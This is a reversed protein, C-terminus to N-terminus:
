YSKSSLQRNEGYRRIREYLFKREFDPISMPQYYYYGQAKNCGCALIYEAQEKTEVGEAIMDVSLEKIMGITHKLIIRTKEDTINNLFCKDIKIEDVPQQILMNMSSYGSGFDDMSFIFGKERLKCMNRYMTNQDELFASETLELKIYKPSIKYKESLYCLMDVFNSNYVHLRSVNVSIPILYYGESKWRRLTKFVEEWVFSDVRIIFGDKEFVSIFDDPKMKNGQADIWRVLAEAGIMRGTSMNIKPQLFIHFERNRLASEMRNEIQKEALIRSRIEPNYFTYFDFVKGKITELSLKAYDCLISPSQIGNALCIGFAPFIKCSLPYTVLKNNIDTVIQIIDEKATYPTILAFTDVRFHSALSYENEYAHFCASIFALLDDGQKRGCFDNVTQFRYIDFYIMAFQKQPYKRLLEFAKIYFANRSMLVMNDSKIDKTNIETTKMIFNLSLEYEVEQLIGSLNEVNIEKRDM